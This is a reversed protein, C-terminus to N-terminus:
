PNGQYFPRVRERLWHCVPDDAAELLVLNVPWKVPVRGLARGLADLPVARADGEFRTLEVGVFM